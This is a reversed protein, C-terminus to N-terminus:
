FRRRNRDTQYYGIRTCCPRYTHARIERREINTSTRSKNSPFHQCCFKSHMRHRHHIIRSQLTVKQLQYTLSSHCFFFSYFCGFAYSFKDSSFRAFKRRHIPIYFGECPFNSSDNRWVISIIDILRHDHTKRVKFGIFM